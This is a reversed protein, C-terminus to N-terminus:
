EVAGQFLPHNLYMVPIVFRQREEGAQGVLVALCGKPVDHHDHHHHLHFKMMSHNHRVSRVRSPAGCEGEGGGRERELNWCHLLASEVNCCHELSMGAVCCHELSSAIGLVPHLEVNAKELNWLRRRRRREGAERREDCGDM